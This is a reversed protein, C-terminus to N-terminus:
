QPCIVCPTTFSKSISTLLSRRYIRMLYQRQMDDFAYATAMDEATKDTITITLVKLSVEQRTTVEEGTEDTTTVEQTETRAEVSSSISNM